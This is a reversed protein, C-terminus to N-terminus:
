FAMRIVRKEQKKEREKNNLCFSLYIERAEDDGREAAEEYQSCAEEQRDSFYLAEGKYFYYDGPTPLDEPNLEDLLKLAENYQEDLVYIIAINFKAVALSPDIELATQYDRLALAYKEMEAYAAARMYLADRYSPRLKIAQSYHRIAAQTRYDFYLLNGMFYHAEPLNPDLKLAKKLKKDAKEFQNLNMFAAGHNANLIASKSNLKEAKEYSQLAAVFKEEKQFCNGRLLYADFDDENEEILRNLVSVARAYEEKEYLSRAEWLADADQGSVWKFLVLLILTSYRM